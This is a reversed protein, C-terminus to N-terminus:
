AAVKKPKNKKKLDELLVLLSSGIPIDREGTKPKWNKKARISIKKREFDINDWQLNELEGKRM